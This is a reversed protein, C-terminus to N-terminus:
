WILPVMRAKGRVAEEGFSKRYWERTGQATVGLNVAVFVFCCLMTKGFVEGVPATILALGLYEFCEALYHPTVTYDFLPHDPLTYDGQTLKKMFRLYGHVNSQTTSAFFFIALGLLVLIRKQNPLDQPALLTLFRKGIDGATSTKEPNADTFLTHAILARDGEIWIAVSTVVYFLIGMIWHGFFM